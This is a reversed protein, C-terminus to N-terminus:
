TRTVAPFTTLLESRKVTKWDADVKQIFWVFM